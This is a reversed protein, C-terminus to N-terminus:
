VHEGAGLQPVADRVARVLAAHLAPELLEDDPARGHLRQLLFADDFTFWLGGASGRGPQSM